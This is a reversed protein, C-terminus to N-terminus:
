HGSWTSAAAWKPMWCCASAPRRTLRTSTRNAEFPSRATSVIASPSRKRWRNLWRWWSSATRDPITESAASSWRTGVRRKSSWRVGIGISVAPFFSAGGPATLQWQLNSSSGLQDDFLVRQGAAADFTYVDEEGRLTIASEVVDGIAVHVTVPEAVEVLEFRYGTGPNGGLVLTYQGTAPLVLMELDIFYNAGLLLAGNPGTLWWHLDSAAGVQADLLVRRGAVGDFTYVDIEEAVAIAGSAVDGIEIAQTSAPVVELLRFQYSEPLPSPLLSRVQLTYTGDEVLQIPGQDLFPQVFVRTGSPATLECAGLEMPRLVHLRVYQGAQVEFAWEDAAGLEVQDSVVQGFTILTAPDAIGSPSHNGSALAFSGMARQVGTEQPLSREYAYVLDDVADVVWVGDGPAAGNTVGTPDQNDPDLQWNGLLSGQTDYVFVRDAQGDVVWLSRGDTTLGTPHQNAAALALSDTSEAVGARRSAAQAYHLVRDQHADVIWIDNGETAIGESQIADGATWSGVQAGSATDLVSVYGRGGIVWLTTGDASAAVDRPSDTLQLDLQGLAQGRADYRFAADSIGDIVLFKAHHVPQTLASWVPQGALLERSELTELLLPRFRHRISRLRRRGNARIGNGGYTM